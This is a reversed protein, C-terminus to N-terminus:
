ARPLSSFMTTSVNTIKSTEEFTKGVQPFMTASVFKAERSAFINGQSNLFM